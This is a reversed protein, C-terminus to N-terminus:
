AARSHERAISPKARPREPRPGIASEEAAFTRHWEILILSACRLCFYATGNLKISGCKCAVGEFYSNRETM